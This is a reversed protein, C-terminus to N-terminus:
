RIDNGTVGAPMLAPLYGCGVYHGMHGGANVVLGGHEVTAPGRAVGRTAQAARAGEVYQQYYDSGFIDTINPYAPGNWCAAFVDGNASVYERVVTGTALTTSRVTYSAAGSAGSSSAPATGSAGSTIANRMTAMTSSGSSGSTAPTASSSSTTVSAGQPTAMPSGGLAAKAIPAAALMGAACFAAAAHAFVHRRSQNSEFM